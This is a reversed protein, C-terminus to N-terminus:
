RNNQKFFLTAYGNTVSVISLSANEKPGFSIDVYDISKVDTITMAEQDYDVLVRYSVIGPNNKIGVQVIVEDGQEGKPM